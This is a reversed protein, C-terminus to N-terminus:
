WDEDRMKAGKKWEEHHVYQHGDHDDAFTPTNFTVVATALLLSAVLPTRPTRM